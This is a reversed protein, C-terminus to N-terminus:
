AFLWAPIGAKASAKDDYVLIMVDVARHSANTATNSPLKARKSKTKRWNKELRHSAIESAAIAISRTPSATPKNNPARSDASSTCQVAWTSVQIFAQEASSPAQDTLAEGFLNRPATMVVAAKDSKRSNTSM